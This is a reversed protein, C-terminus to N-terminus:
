SSSARHPQKREAQRQRPERGRRAEGRRSQAQLGALDPILRDLAPPKRNRLVPSPGRSALDIELDDDQGLDPLAGLLRGHDPEVPPWADCPGVAGPEIGAVESEMALPARHDQEVLAPGALGAREVTRLDLTLRGQM